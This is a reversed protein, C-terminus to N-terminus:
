GPRAVQRRHRYRGDARRGRRPRHRDAQSQRDGGCEPGKEVANWTGRVYKYEIAASEPLELTITWHQDDLQTMVLGAPDWRPLDPTGFDGAIYVDGKGEKTYDPVTVIFTVPIGRRQVKAEGAGVPESENLATDVASVAYTYTNGASM